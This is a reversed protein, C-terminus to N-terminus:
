KIAGTSSLLEELEQDAPGSPESDDDGLLVLARRLLAKAAGEYDEKPYPVPYSAIVASELLSAALRAAGVDKEEELLALTKLRGEEKTPDPLERPVIQAELDKRRYVLPEEDGYAKLFLLAYTRLDQSREESMAISRLLKRLGEDKAKPDLRSLASLVVYDDESHLDKLREAASKGESTLAAVNSSVLRPLSRLVEEVEQSVYPKDNFYAIDDYAGSFDKALFRLEFDVEITKKPFLDFFADREKFFLESASSLHSLSLYASVRLFDAKTGQEGELAALAEEGKGEQLLLVAQDLKDM